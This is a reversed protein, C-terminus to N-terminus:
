CSNNFPCVKLRCFNYYFNCVLPVFFRREILLVLIKNMKSASFNVLPLTFIQVTIKLTWFVVYLKSRTLFCNYTFLYASYCINRVMM